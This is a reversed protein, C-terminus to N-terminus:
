FKFSADMRFEVGPQPFDGPVKNAPAPDGYDRDFLNHISARIEATKYFNKAILTIDLLPYAPLSKRTDGEPRKRGGMVLLNTNANLYKCAAWNIGLNGRHKPVDAVTKGSNKAERAYQFSYNAYASSDEDWHTKFEVEVGDVDVGGLNDWQFGESTAKKGIIDDLENRFYTVNATLFKGFRYEVAVEYTNIEEPDLDPNGINSPNNALALEAFNPARFAEGYLIKLEGNLNFGWVLGVQFNTTGGFDEYNDHRLGATLNLNNFIRWDDQIFFAWIEREYREIGPLSDSVDQYGGPLPFGTNSDVNAYTHLDFTKEQEYLGGATIAHSEFLLYDIQLEIGLTRDKGIPRGLMGEPFAGLFGEPFVEWYKDIKYQDAYGKVLLHLDETLSKDYTLVGYFETWRQVSEDNLAYAAGIYPGMHKDVYRGRFTFDWASLTLTVDNKERRDDTRGPAMSASTGVARDIFTAADERVMLNPGDTDTHDFAVAIDFYKTEKGFLVNVKETDFSGGGAQIRLGDIDGADMTIVNIVAVFANAGYLASGPGRIVEVRKINEVFLDDYVQMAGGFTPMNVAHGDIMLMVKEANATKIGRVEITRLGVFEQYVGFGPVIKLIDMLDRAGMNRIQEATIVTAIAPAERLRKIYRTATYLKEEEGWFLVEEPAAFPFDMGTQEELMEEAISSGPLFVPAGSLAIFLLFARFVTWSLTKRNRKVNKM